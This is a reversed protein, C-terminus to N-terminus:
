VSIPGDAFKLEGRQGAPTELDSYFVYLKDYKRTEFSTDYVQGLTVHDNDIVIRLNDWIFTAEYFKRTPKGFLKEWEAIPKGFPM